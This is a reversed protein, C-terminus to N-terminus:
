AFISTLEATLYDSPNGFIGKWSEDPLYEELEVDSFRNIFIKKDLDIFFYLTILDNPYQTKALIIENSSLKDGEISELFLDINEDKVNYIHNRFVEEWLDPNYHPDYKGYNLIWWAIPMLYISSINEHKIVGLLYNDDLRKKISNM